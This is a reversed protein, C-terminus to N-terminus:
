YEADNEDFLCTRKMTDWSRLWYIAIPSNWTYIVQQKPTKNKNSM